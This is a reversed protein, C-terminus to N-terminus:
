VKAWFFIATAISISLMLSSIMFEAKSATKYSGLYLYFIKFLKSIKYFILFDNNMNHHENHNDDYYNSFLM